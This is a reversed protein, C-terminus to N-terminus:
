WRFAAVRTAGAKSWSSSADVESGDVPNQMMELITRTGEAGTFQYGAPVQIEALDGMKAKTPGKQWAIPSQDEQARVATCHAFSLLAVLGICTAIWPRAVCSRSLFM